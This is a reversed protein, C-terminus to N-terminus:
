TLIAMLLYKILKDITNSTGRESHVISDLHRTIYERMIFDHTYISFLNTLGHKRM